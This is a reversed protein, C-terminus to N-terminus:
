VGRIRAYLSDPAIDAGNPWVITGSRDDVTVREFFKPDTWAAFVGHGALASVDVVGGVGDEFRVRLRYGDLPEVETVRHLLPM